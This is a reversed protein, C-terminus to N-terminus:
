SSAAAIPTPISTNIVREREGYFFFFFFFPFTIKLNILSFLSSRQPEKIPKSDWKWIRFYQWFGLVFPNKNETTGAAHALICDLNTGLVAAGEGWFKPPNRLICIHKKM